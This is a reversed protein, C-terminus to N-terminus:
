AHVIHLFRVQITQLRAPSVENRFITNCSQCKLTSILDLGSINPFLFLFQIKLLRSPKNNRSIIYHLKLVLVPMNIISILM